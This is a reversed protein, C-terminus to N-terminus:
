PRGETREHEHILSTDIRELAQVVTRVADYLSIEGRKIKDHLDPGHHEVAMSLYVIAPSIELVTAVQAVMEKQAVSGPGDLQRSEHITSIPRMKHVVRRVDMATATSFDVKEVVQKIEEPKLGALERVQKENKPGRPGAVAAIKAAKIQRNAHRRSWNWRKHCYDEFTTFGEERYLHKDRIEMLASGVEMFTQMGQKIVAELETLRTRCVKASYNPPTCASSAIQATSNV